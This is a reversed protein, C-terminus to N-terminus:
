PTPGLVIKLLCLAHLNVESKGAALEVESVEARVMHRTGGATLAPRSMHHQGAASPMM